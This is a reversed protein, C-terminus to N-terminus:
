GRVAQFREHAHGQDPNTESQPDFLIRRAAEAYACATSDHMTFVMALHLPDAGCDIAERLIRDTRIRELRVGRLLLQRKLFYDSVPEEGLATSRSIVVHRNATGPWTAARERLWRDLLTASLEGMHEQRGNLTVRRAPIDVDELSLVRITHARAAHVAALVVVLRQLTTTATARVATIEEDTMPAVAGLPDRARPHHLSRTPDVFVARRAKAHAFLSSAAVLANSRRRGQLRDLETLVDTKTVERLARRGADNWARVLPAIQGLYVYLTSRSRPRHRADGHALLRLWDRLDDAYGDPLGACRRQIWADVVPETDDVVLGLDSLVQVVRRRSVRAPIRALVTSLAEPEERDGALLIHLAAAVGEITSPAWGHAEGLSRAHAVARAGRNV